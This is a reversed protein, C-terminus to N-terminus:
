FREGVVTRLDGEGSNLRWFRRGNTNNTQRNGPGHAVVAQAAATPSNFVRGSWPATLIRLEMTSPNFEGDVRQSKYVSHVPLWKGADYDSARDQPPNDGPDSPSMPDPLPVPRTPAPPEELRDVLIRIVDGVPRSMLAASFRLKEYTRQDVTVEPM